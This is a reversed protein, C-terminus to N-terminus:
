RAGEFPWLRAAGRVGSSDGHAARVICTTVADTFAYNEIAAAVRETLKPVRSMGGGVVVVHPDLVNVITALGRAFRDVYRELAAIAHADGTGAAAIAAKADAYVRTRGTSVDRAFGPGSLWTEICGSKGCYCAPGPLEDPNAWPLPNHGWEGAIANPGALLAGDVVIGGGVGTGVIAAFVIRAGAGAGDAAESLALCDADNAIRISRGLARELDHRLPRGILVTSNANKVLGSVPSIAGPAGIGVPCSTGIEHETDAVLRAVAAITAAYDGAPTAIRRRLCETGDAGLVVIEIKTGGLDIGIRPVTRGGPRRVEPDHTVGINGLREVTPRDKV